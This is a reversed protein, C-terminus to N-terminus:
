FMAFYLALSLAVLGAKLGAEAGCSRSSCSEIRKYQITGPGWCGIVYPFTTTMVYAYSGDSLFTGNCFDHDDCAWIEGAADYPGVIMHGDRALGLVGGYNSTTPWGGNANRIMWKWPDTECETKDGTLQTCRNPIFIPKTIICPSMTNYSWFGPNKTQETTGSFQAAPESHGLCEDFAKPSADALIQFHDKGTLNIAPLIATNSITFGAIYELSTTGAAPSFNTGAMMNGTTLIGKDCMIREFFAKDQGEKPYDYGSHYKGYV